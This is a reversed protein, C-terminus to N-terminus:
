AVSPPGRAFHSTCSTRAEVRSSLRTSRLVCEGTPLMVSAPGALSATALFQCVLCGDVPVRQPIEHVTPHDPPATRKAGAVKAPAEHRHGASHACNSHSHHGCASGDCDSKSPNAGAALRAASSCVGHTCGGPGHAAHGSHDHLLGSITIALTYGTLVLWTAIPNNRLRSM